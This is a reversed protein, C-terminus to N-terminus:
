TTHPQCMWTDFKSYSKERQERQQKVKEIELLRQEHKAKEAKLGLDKADVGDLLSKEIKKRWVFRETLNNDGFPNETDTYGAIEGQKLRAGLKQAQM